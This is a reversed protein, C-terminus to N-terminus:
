SDRLGSATDTPLYLAHREIYAAVTPPVADAISRGAAVAVRIESSSVDHTSADVLWVTAAEDPGTGSPTDLPSQMRPALTPLRDRLQGSPLGPRSVVIFHCCDLFAPYDHWTAIEAFADAGTIFFLTSRDHGARAMRELTTSTYSPAPSLLEMDSVRLGDRGAIALATMAFRHYGSARPPTTRHPPVRSPILLVTDLGLAGRAAEAVDLHGRHIPDFTGGLIGTRRM